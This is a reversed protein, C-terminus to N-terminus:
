FKVSIAHRWARGNFWLHLTFLCFTCLVSIQMTFIIFLKVRELACQHRALGTFNVDDLFILTNEPATNFIYIYLYGTSENFM